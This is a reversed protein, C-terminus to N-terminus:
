RAPTSKCVLDFNHYIEIEGRCSHVPRIEACLKFESNFIAVGGPSSIQAWFHWSSSKWTPDIHINLIKGGDDDGDGDGFWWQRWGGGGWSWSWLHSEELLLPGVQQDLVLIETLLHAGGLCERSLYCKSNILHCHQRKSKIISINCVMQLCHFDKRWSETFARWNSVSSAWM